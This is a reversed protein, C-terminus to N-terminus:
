RHITAFETNVLRAVSNTPYGLSNHVAGKNKENLLELAASLDIGKLPSM